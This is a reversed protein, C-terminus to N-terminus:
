RLWALVPTLLIVLGPVAVKPLFDSWRPDASKQFLRQEKWYYMLCLAASVFLWFGRGGGTIASAPLFVVFLFLVVGVRALWVHSNKM